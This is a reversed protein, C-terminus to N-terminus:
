KMKSNLSKQASPSCFELVFVKKSHPTPKKKLNLNLFNLNQVPTYFSGIALDIILYAVSVGSVSCSFLLDFYENRSGQKVTCNVKM